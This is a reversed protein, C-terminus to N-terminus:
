GRSQEALGTLLTQMRSWDRPSVRDRLEEQVRQWRPRAKELLRTGEATNRWLRERRDKGPRSRVWGRRHMRGLNRTLTTSDTALVEAMEGQRCGPRQDLVQLLTFQTTSLGAERLAADYLQTVARAARRLNACM